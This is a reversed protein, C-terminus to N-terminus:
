RAARGSKNEKSPIEMIEFSTRSLLEFVLAKECATLRSALHHM